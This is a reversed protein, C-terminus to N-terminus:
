KDRGPQTRSHGLGHKPKAQNYPSGRAKDKSHLALTPKACLGWPWMSEAGTVPSAAWPWM